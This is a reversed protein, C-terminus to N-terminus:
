LTQEASLIKISLAARAWPYANKIMEYDPGEKVFAAIGTVLFGAGKYTKGAIERNTITLKVNNNVAINKETEIMKGAPILFNGADTIRVYSNWTNVVHPESLGQTVISLAADPPTSLVKLLQKDIPMKLGGKGLIFSLPKKFLVSASKFCSFAGKNQPGACSLRDMNRFEAIVMIVSVAFAILDAAPGAYMIGDVGYFLPFVLIFPLLFIIQRTLSLFVGKKPKGISTFLNSSIPQMFNIFTFFMFIRFYAAAFDFYKQTGSGFLSIIQNPILQFMAFATAAVIFGYRIALKYISKVRGYQKAGYNFSAIPQMAQSIGIVIAFFIMAVKNIIGSVALPVSEGYISLAGYYTLSKNMTIQTVTMAIQNFAPATGLAIVRGTYRWKPTLHRKKIRVTKYRYFYRVALYFSLLQGIVTALAAGAMDMNFGFIFIPDLVTNLLAGSLNCVMAYRPSGDARILHGGGVSLILFPFGWSTIQTYTSAYGLVNAPSGFFKLLPTLFLQTIITLASGLLFLIVAANGVYYPASKTKGEGMALNFAAAGGIGLLLAIAVCSTTLPFAVNTAANGLEGIKHGIFFQDVINYLAGVLMAVISPIAFNMLLRGIPKTGLSNNSNLRETM